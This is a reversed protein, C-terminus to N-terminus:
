VDSNTVVPSLDGNDYLDSAVQGIKDRLRDFTERWGESAHAEDDLAQATVRCMVQQEGDFMAFRIGAVLNTDDVIKAQENIPWRLPMAESERLVM